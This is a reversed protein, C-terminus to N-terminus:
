HEEAQQLARAQEQQMETIQKQRREAETEADEAVSNPVAVENSPQL